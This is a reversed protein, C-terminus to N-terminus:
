QTSNNTFPCSSLGIHSVSCQVGQGAPGEVVLGNRRQDEGYELLATALANRNVTCIRLALRCSGSRIVDAKQQHDRIVLWEICPWLWTEDGNRSVNTM